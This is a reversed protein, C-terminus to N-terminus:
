ISVLIIKYIGYRIMLSYKYSIIYLLAFQSFIQFIVLRITKNTTIDLIKRKFDKYIDHQLDQNDGQGGGVM